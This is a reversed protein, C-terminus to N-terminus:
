MQWANRWDGIDKRTLADTQRQLEVVTKKLRRRDSEKALNFTGYPSHLVRNALTNQKQIRRKNM